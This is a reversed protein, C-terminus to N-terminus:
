EKMQMDSMANQVHLTQGTSKDIVVGNNYKAVIDDFLGPQVHAFYQVPAAEQPASVNKYSEADLTDSSAKVKDVWANFEDDSVAHTLFKMDSFGRGTYQAAEGHFIGPQTAMLHLQTQMGAMAYIQSGLRPIFFSTMVADSTIRFNIPAGVPFELENVTAIGQDPYIFLWKWDLSVVEVNIPAHTAGATDTTLPRYPDLAFSSWASIGGLILIIIAPIGWIFVEIKTSHSWNPLYEADKNKANYKVAYILTLVIVPIVICLMVGAEALIINRQQLGIPGAPELLDLTCGSLLFAPAVPLLRRMKPLIKDKM